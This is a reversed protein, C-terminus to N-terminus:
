PFPCFSSLFDSDNGWTTCRQRPRKGSPWSSLCAGPIKIQRCIVSDVSDRGPSLPFPLAYVAFTLAYFDRMSKCWYSVTSNEIHLFYM